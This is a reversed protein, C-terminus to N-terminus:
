GAMAAKIADIAAVRQAEGDSDGAITKAELAALMAQAKATEGTKAYAVGLDRQAILLDADYSVAKQLLKVAGKHDGLGIRSAGAIYYVVAQKGAYPLVLAM